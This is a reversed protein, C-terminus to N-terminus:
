EETDYVESGYLDIIYKRQEEVNKKRGGEVVPIEGRKHEGSETIKYKAPNFKTVKEGCRSCVLFTKNGKSKPVM